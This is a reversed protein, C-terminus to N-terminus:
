QDDEDISMVYISTIKDWMTQKELLTKSESFVKLVLYCDETTRVEVRGDRRVKLRTQLLVKLDKLNSSASIEDLRQRIKKAKKKGYSTVLEPISHAVSAIEENKFMINM